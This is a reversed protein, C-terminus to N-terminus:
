LSLTYLTFLRIVKHCCSDLYLAATLCLLACLQSPFIPPTSHPVIGVETFILNLDGIGIGVWALHLECSPSLDLAKDTVAESRPSADVYATYVHM